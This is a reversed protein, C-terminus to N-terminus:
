IAMGSAEWTQIMKHRCIRLIHKNQHTKKQQLLLLETTRMNIQM